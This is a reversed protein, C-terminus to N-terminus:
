YGTTIIPTGILIYTKDEHENYRIALNLNIKDKDIVLHEAILPSYIIYSSYFEDGDEELIRGEIKNVIDKVKSDINEEKIKGPITGILCSTIEIPNDSDKFIDEVKEIIDNIELFDNTKIINIYLYTEGEVNDPNLYSSLIISMENDRDDRGIYTIQSFGEDFIEEKTHHNDISRDYEILPDIEKGQMNLKGKIEEGLKTIDEQNIFEDKIIGSFLIEGKDIKSGINDAIDVLVFYDNYERDAQTIGSLLLFLIIGISIIKKM